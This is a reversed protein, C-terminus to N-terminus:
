EFLGLNVTSKKATGLQLWSPPTKGEVEFAKTYMRVRSSVDFPKLGVPFLEKNESLAEAVSEATRISGRSKEARLLEFLATDREDRVTGEGWVGPTSMPGRPGKPGGRRKPTESGQIATEEPTQNQNEETGAQNTDAQTQATQAKNGTKIAM